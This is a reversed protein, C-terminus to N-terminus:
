RMWCIGLVLALVGMKICPETKNVGNSASESPGGNTATGTASPTALSTATGLVGKLTAGGDAAAQSASSVRYTLEAAITLSM